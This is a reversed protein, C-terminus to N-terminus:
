CYAVEFALLNRMKKRRELFPRDPARGSLRNHGALAQATHVAAESVCATGDDPSRGIVRELGIPRTSHRPPFDGGGALLGQL